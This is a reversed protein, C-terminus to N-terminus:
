EVANVDQNTKAEIAKVRAGDAVGFTAVVAEIESRAVASFPAIGTIAPEDALACLWALEVHIRHRILGYESFHERLAAVKGAYRGDLPSLAVLAAAAAASDTRDFSGAM